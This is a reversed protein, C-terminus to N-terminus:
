NDILISRLRKNFYFVDKVNKEYKNYFEKTVPIAPNNETQQYLLPGYENNIISLIIEKNLDMKLKYSRMM